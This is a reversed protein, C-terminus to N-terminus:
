MRKSNEAVIADHQAQTIKGAALMEATKRNLEQTINGYWADRLRGRALAEQEETLEIEDVQAPTLTLTGTPLKSTELINKISKSM